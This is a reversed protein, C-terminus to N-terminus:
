EEEEPIYDFRCCELLELCLLRSYMDGKHKEEDEAYFDNLIDALRTQAELAKYAMELAEFYEPIQKKYEEKLELRGRIENMAEFILM